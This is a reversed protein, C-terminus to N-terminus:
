TQVCPSYCVQTICCSSNFCIQILCAGSPRSCSYRSSILLLFCNGQCSASEWAGMKPQKTSLKASSFLDTATGSCYTHIRQVSGHVGKWLPLSQPAPLGPSSFSWAVDLLVVQEEAVGSAWHSWWTSCIQEIGKPAWASGGNSLSCSLNCIKAAEFLLKSVNAIQETAITRHSREMLCNEWWWRIVKNLRVSHYQFENGMSDWVWVTNNCTETSKCQFLKEMYLSM